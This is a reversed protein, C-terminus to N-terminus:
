LMNVQQRLYAQFASTAEDIWGNNEDDKSVNFTIGEFTVNHSTAAAFGAGQGAYAADRQKKAMEEAIGAITKDWKDDIGLKMAAWRYFAESSSGYKLAAEMPTLDKDSKITPTTPTTSTDGGGGGGSNSSNSVTGSGSTGSASGHAQQTTYRNALDRIQSLYSQTKSDTVIMGDGNADIKYKAEIEELGLASEAIQKKVDDLMTEQKGLSMGIWGESDTLVKVLDYNLNIEGTEPDIASAMLTHVEDWLLGQEQEWELTAQMIEIQQERQLAAKENDKSLQEVAQDILTDQYNERADEIEKQLKMAELDNAGSTDRQLYALRQEKDAIEEETKTNDRIQRSLTISEQLNSIIKENSEKITDSLSSYEDIQKQYLTVVADLVRDEFNLYSDIVQQAFEEMKDEIEWLKDRVEEYSQVWEELQSIYAEAAEGKKATAPSKELEELGPWDITIHGTAADYSAYKTVGLQSFTARNGESDTYVESGINAIQRLRGEAMQSQLDAEQRLAEINHKYEERIDKMSSTRDKLLKDYRRELAERTRLSENIKENLNYLEDYPNKWYSPKDGKAAKANKGMDDLNSSNVSSGSVKTIGDITPIQVDEYTTEFTWLNYKYGTSPITVEEGKKGVIKPVKITKFSVKYGLKEAVDALQETTWGAAEAIKNLKGVFEEDNISVGIEIENNKDYEEIITSFDNFEKKFDEEDFDPAFKISKPIDLYPRLHADLEKIIEDAAEGSEAVSLRKVLELTKNLNTEDLFEDTFDIDTGLIKQLSSKLGNIASAYEATGKQAKQTGDFSDWLVGDYNDFNKLIESLGTNLETNAEAYAYALDITEKTYTNNQMTLVALEHLGDIEIGRAAAMEYTATIQGLALSASQIEEENGKELVENYKEIAETAVNAQEARIKLVNSLADFDKNGKQAMRGLDTVDMSQAFYIMSQSSVQGQLSAENLIENLSNQLYSYLNENGTYTFEKEGTQLFAKKLEPILGILVDKEETTFSRKGPEKKLTNMIPTIKELSGQLGEKNYKKVANNVEILNKTLKKFSESTVDSSYGAKKLTEDLNLYELENGFDGFSSMISLLIDKDKESLNNENVYDFITAISQAPNEFGELLKKSSDYDLKNFLTRLNESISFEGFLTAFNQQQQSGRSIFSNAVNQKASEDGLFISSLSGKLLESMKLRSERAYDSNFRQTDEYTAKGNLVRVTTEDKLIESALNLLEKSQDDDLVNSWKGGSEGLLISLAQREEQSLGEMDGIAQAYRIGANKNADEFANKNLFGEYIKDEVAEVTNNFGEIATDSLVNKSNVVGLIYEGVNSSSLTGDKIGEIIGKKVEERIEDGIDSYNDFVIDLEETGEAKKELVLTDAVASKGVKQLAEVETDKLVENALNTDFTLVGDKITLAKALEPFKELLENVQGNLSKVADKWETTGVKLNDITKRQESLEELKNGLEKVNDVAEKAEKNAEEAEKELTKLSKPKLLNWATVAATIALVAASIAPHAHIFTAIRLVFNKVGKAANVFLSPIKKITALFGTTGKTAKVTEKTFEEIVEKGDVISKKIIKETVGTATGLHLINTAIGEIVKGIVVGSLKLGGFALLFKTLGSTAGPLSDTFDNIKTVIETLLDIAGKIIENNAIGMLFTNWANELQALKAKLSELTKAFQEHAFGNANTAYGVLEQTRKYDSMMALFRSQQRSGAAMTAIYRKQVEDLNEWKSALDIFIQDLGKAGTFYENLNIGATRLATSIKNVDIIEGEEDAGQLQGTTYLKKVESFRAVVTKLATGATEASERTTEIIQTLFAATNEFEMNASHALSAVKTMAKSIDDVNAASKAALNNYVDDVRQASTADLEMNFGRLANTMRDTADAANLGAIRAMKLTENSIELARNEELGQQLFITMAEYADHITVGLENARETYKPLQEWLDSIQYNTVVAMSTMVEDLDKVTDYASRVARRFLHMANALGFFTKTREKLRDISKNFDENTKVNEKQEDNMERSAKAGNQLAKILAELMPRIHEFNQDDIEQLKQKFEEVNQIEEPNFGFNFTGHSLEVMIDKLKKFQNSELEDFQKQLEELKGKTEDSSKDYNQEAESLQVLVEYSKQRAERVKEEADALEKEAQALDRALNSNKLYVDAQAETAGNNIYEERKRNYADRIVNVNDQAVVKGKNAKTEGGKASSVKRKLSKILNEQTALNEKLIKQQEQLEKNAKDIEAEYDGMAKKADTLEKPTNILSFKKQNKSLNNMLSKYKNEVDRLETELKKKDAINLQNNETYEKIKKLKEEVEKFGSKLSDTVNEPGKLGNLEKRVKNLEEQLGTVRGQIDVTLKVVDGRGM